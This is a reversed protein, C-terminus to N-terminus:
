RPTRGIAAVIARPIEKEPHGELSMMMRVLRDNVGRIVIPDEISDLIINIVAILTVTAQGVAGGLATVIEESRM